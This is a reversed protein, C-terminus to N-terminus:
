SVSQNAEGSSPVAVHNKQKEKWLWFLTAYSGILLYGLVIKMVTDVTQPTIHLADTLNGKGLCSCPKQYGVWLLGFRYLLFSTALWAVLVVQLWVRKGFFCVHAVVLEIIGVIWFVNRFSLFLVPDSTQLISASGSASGLKATATTM